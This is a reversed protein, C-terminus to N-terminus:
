YVSPYEIHRPARHEPPKPAVAGAGRLQGLTVVASGSTWFNKASGRAVLEVCAAHACQSVGTRAPHFEYYDLMEVKMRTAPNKRWNKPAPKEVTWRVCDIAGYAFQLDANKFDSQEIRLTGTDGGKMVSQRIKNRVGSSRNIMDAVDIAVETGSGRLFHAFLRAALPGAAIVRAMAFIAVERPDGFACACDVASRPDIRHTMLGCSRRFRKQMEPWPAAPKLDDQVPACPGLKRRGSPAEEDPAELLAVAHGCHTCEHDPVSEDFEETLWGTEEWDATETWLEADGEDAIAEGFEDYEDDAEAVEWEDAFEDMSEDTPSFLDNRTPWEDDAEDIFGAFVSSESDSRMPKSVEAVINSAM